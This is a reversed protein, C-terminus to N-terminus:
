HCSCVFKDKASQACQYKTGPPCGAASAASSALLLAVIVLIAKM